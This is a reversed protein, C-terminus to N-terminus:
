SANKLQEELYKRLPPISADVNSTMAFDIISQPVWSKIDVQIIGTYKSSPRDKLWANSKSDFREMTPTLWVGSGYNKGRVFGKKEPFDTKEHIKSVFLFDGNDSTQLGVLDIFDRASIAGGALAGTITRRVCLTNNMSILDSIEITDDWNKRVECVGIARLTWQPPADIITEVKFVAPEGKRKISSIKVGASDQKLSWESAPVQMTNTLEQKVTHMLAVLDQTLRKTEEDGNKLVDDLLEQWGYPKFSPDDTFNADIIDYTSSVSTVTEKRTTKTRLIKTDLCSFIAFTLILFICSIVVLLSLIGLFYKLSVIILQNEFLM